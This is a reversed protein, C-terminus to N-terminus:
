CTSTTVSRTLKRSSSRPYPNTSYCLFVYAEALSHRAGRGGRPTSVKIGSDMDLWNFARNINAFAMLDESSRELLRRALHEHPIIRSVFSSNSKAINNKPKKKVNKGTAASLSANGNGFKEPIHAMDSSRTVSSGSGGKGTSSEEDTEASISSEVGDQTDRSGAITPDRYIVNFKTERSKIQVLSVRTGAAIPHPATSLPNPNTIPTESPHPSPTVLHIDEKLVYTGPTSTRSTLLDVTLPDDTLVPCLFGARLAVRYRGEGVSFQYEPGIPNKITNNTELIPVPPGSLGGYTAGNPYRNLLMTLALDRLSSFM